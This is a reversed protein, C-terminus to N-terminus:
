KASNALMTSRQPLVSQPRINTIAVAAHPVKRVVNATVSFSIAANADDLGGRTVTATGDTICQYINQQAIATLETACTVGTPPDIDAITRMGEILEEALNTAMTRVNADTSSRTLNGQLAALALMGVVFIVIALLVDLLTMGGEKRTTFSSKRRNTKTNM